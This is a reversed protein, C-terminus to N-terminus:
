KDHKEMFSQLVDFNENGRSGFKSTLLVEEEILTGSMLAQEWAGDSTFLPVDIGADEIMKKLARLYLKDNSFSGYENEVQVMIVPGGTTVQLPVILPLLVKFYNEVKELFLEDDCRIKM